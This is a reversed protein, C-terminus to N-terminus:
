PHKDPAIIELAPFYTAFGATDRTLLAHGCVAAHAGIFFDPLTSQRAGGLAGYRAHAKGALFAASWPVDEGDLFRMFLQSELEEVDLFRTSIEAYIIPNIIARSTGVAVELAARSWDFWASSLTMVDLLVNSDVLISTKM